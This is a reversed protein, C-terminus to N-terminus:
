YESSLCVVVINRISLLRLMLVNRADFCVCVSLVCASLIRSVDLEREFYGLEESEDFDRDGPLENRHSSETGSAGHM